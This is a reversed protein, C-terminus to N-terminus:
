RPPAEGRRARADEIARPTMDLEGIGVREIGFAELVDRAGDGFAHRFAQAPTMWALKGRPESNVESMLLSCDRPTLRDFRIGRGKPLLKRIETHNRECGGKQDARRPDCYYLGTEGAREGFASALAGEDAFESGNDTLVVGFARRMADKSGLAREVLGLGSLVSPSTQDRFPLSLQFSTPRHYLTLLCQTDDKTGVVTDMECARAREEEPLAMFAEFSRERGHATQRRAGAKRRPKYGVKRRLEANSMGGYGEDIWRYITAKSVGVGEARACAIQQPSLGRALDARILSVAVEFSARDMDVGRRPEVKDLEAFADADAAMYECRWRYSCHGYRRYPCGNCCFPWSLLKPCVRGGGADRGDTGSVNDGRGPGRTVVRNRVVEDHM